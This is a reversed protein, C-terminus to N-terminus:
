MFCSIISVMPYKKHSSEPNIINKPNKHFKLRHMRLWANFSQVAAVQKPTRCIIRMSAGLPKRTSVVTKPEGISASNLINHYFWFYMPQIFWGWITPKNNPTGPQQNQCHLLCSCASHLSRDPHMGSLWHNGHCCPHTDTAYVTSHIPWRFGAGTSPLCGLIWLTSFGDPQHLIECGDVIPHFSPSGFFGQSPWSDM